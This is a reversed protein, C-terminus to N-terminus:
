AAGSAKLWKIDDDRVEMDDFGPHFQARRKPFKNARADSVGATEGQAMGAM